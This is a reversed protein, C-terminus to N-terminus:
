GLDAFYSEPEIEIDAIQFIHATIKLIRGAISSERQIHPDGTAV